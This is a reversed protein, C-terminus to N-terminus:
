YIILHILLYICYITQYFLIFYFKNYDSYKKKKKQSQDMDIGLFYIHKLLSSISSVRIEAYTSFIQLANVNTYHIETFNNNCEIDNISLNLHNNNNNNIHNITRQHFHLNDRQKHYGDCNM